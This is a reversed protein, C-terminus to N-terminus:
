IKITITNVRTCNLNVFCIFYCTIQITLKCYTANAIECQIAAVSGLELMQELPM